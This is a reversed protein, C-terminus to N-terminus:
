QVRGRCGRGKVGGRHGVQVRVLMEYVRPICDTYTFLSKFKDDMSMHYLLGLVVPQFRPSSILEVCQVFSLSFHTCTHPPPLTFMLPVFFPFVVPQLM